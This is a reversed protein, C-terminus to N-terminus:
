SRYQDVTDGTLVFRKGSLREGASILEITDGRVGIPEIAGVSRGEGGMVRGITIISSEGRASGSSRSSYLIERNASTRIGASSSANCIHPAARCLTIDSYSPIAM